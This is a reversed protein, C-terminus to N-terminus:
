DLKSEVYIIEKNLFFIFTINRIGLSCSENMFTRVCTGFQTSSQFSVMLGNESNFIHIKSASAVKKKENM